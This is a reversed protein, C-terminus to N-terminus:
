KGFEGDGYSGAGYGATGFADENEGPQDTEPNTILVAAASAFV